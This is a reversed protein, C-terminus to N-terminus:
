RGSDLNQERHSSDDIDYFVQILGNGGTGLRRKGALVVVDVFIQHLDFRPGRLTDSFKVRNLHREHALKDLGECIADHEGVLFSGDSSM